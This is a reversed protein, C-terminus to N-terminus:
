TYSLMDLIMQVWAKVTGWFTAKPKEENKEDQEAPGNEEGFKIKELETLKESRNM